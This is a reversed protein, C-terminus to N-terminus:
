RPQEITKQPQAEAIHQLQLPGNGRSTELSSLSRVIWSIVPFNVPFNVFDWSAQQQADTGVDLM